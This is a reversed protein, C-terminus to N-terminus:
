TKILVLDLMTMLAIEHESKCDKYAVTYANLRDTVVSAAEFYKEISEKNLTIEFETDYIVLKIKVKANGKLIYRNYWRKWFENETYLYQMNSELIDMICKGDVKIEITKDDKEELFVFRHKIVKTLDRSNLYKNCVKDLISYDENELMEQYIIQKWETKPFWLGKRLLLEKGSLVVKYQGDPEVKGRVNKYEYKVCEGNTKMLYVGCREDMPIPLTDNNIKRKVEAM